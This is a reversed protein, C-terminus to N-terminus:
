CSRDCQNKRRGCMSLDNAYRSTAARKSASSHSYNYKAIGKCQRDQKYCAVACSQRRADSKSPPPSSTCGVGAVGVFLLVSLSKFLGNRIITL